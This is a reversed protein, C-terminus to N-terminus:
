IRRSMIKWKLARTLRLFSAGFVILLVYGVLNSDWSTGFFNFKASFAWIGGIFALVLSIITANDKGIAKVINMNNTIKRRKKVKKNSIKMRFWGNHSLKQFPPLDVKLAVSGLFGVSLM